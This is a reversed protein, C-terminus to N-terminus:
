MEGETVAQIRNLADYIRVIQRTLKGTADQVEERVRNGMPDLSYRVTNGLSDTIDTLRHADDYRYAIHTADPLEVGTLQGVRDYYYRTTQEGVGAASVVRRTLQQKADYSLEVLQGNPEKIRTALGSVTYELFERIHGTPGTVKALDGRTHGSATEAYYEYRTTDAGNGARGLITSSLMQGLRNYSYSTIRPAGTKVANFAAAGNVDTTAHEIKKCLVAIPKEDPLTGGDACSAIAGDIDPQGNYIYQTLKLPEAVMTQAAWDPHWKSSVKRQGAGLAGGAAPCAAAAPVGDIHSSELHRATDYTFCTKVNNFDSRSQLMGKASYTYASAAPDCGAGGPQSFSTVRLQGAVPALTLSRAGGLPDTVIRSMGTPYSFDYRKAGSAHESRTVRGQADYKYTAFRVTNEDSIGTLYFWDPWGEGYHYQKASQSLGDADNIQVSTIRQLGSVVIGDDNKLQEYQYHLSFEPSSITAIAYDDHWSVGLTRGFSDTMGKLKGNEDYSFYTGNGDKRHTSMLFYASKIKKFHEIGESAKKYFWEDYTPTVPYVSDASVIEPVYRSGIKNFSISSGDGNIISVRPPPLGAMEGELSFQREFSFSWLAGATSANVLNREYRYTREIELTGLRNGGHDRVQQIKTGTALIMPNGM